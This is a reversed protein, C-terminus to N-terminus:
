SVTLSNDLKKEDKKEENISETIVGLSSNEEHTKYETVMEYFSKCKCRKWAPLRGNIKNTGIRRDARVGTAKHVMEGDINFRGTPKYWSMKGPTMVDKPGINKLM